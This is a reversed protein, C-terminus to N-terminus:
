IIIGTTTALSPWIGHWKERLLKHNPKISAMFERSPRYASGRLPHSAPGSVTYVPLGKYYAQLCFDVGYCHWQKFTKADFWLGNKKNIIICCEDLTQVKWPCPHSSGWYMKRDFGIGVIGLAGWKGLRCEQYTFREFWAKLFKTDEHACIVINNKAKRLGYNLASAGSKFNKNGRNDLKIFEAEPPLYSLLGRKIVEEPWWHITVISIQSLKLRPRVPKGLEKKGLPIPFFNKPYSQLLTMGRRESVEVVSGHYARADEALHSKKDPTAFFILKM